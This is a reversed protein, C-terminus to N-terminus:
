KLKMEINLYFILDIPKIEILDLHNLNYINIVLSKDKSPYFSLLRFFEVNYEHVVIYEIECYNRENEKYQIM